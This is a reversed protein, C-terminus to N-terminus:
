TTQEETIDLKGSIGYQSKTPIQFSKQLLFKSYVKTIPIQFVSKFGSDNLGKAAITLTAEQTICLTERTPFFDKM